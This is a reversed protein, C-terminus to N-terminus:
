VMDYEYFKVNIKGVKVKRCLKEIRKMIFNKKYYFLGLVLFFLVVKNRLLIFYLLYKFCIKNMVIMKILVVIMKEGVCILKNIYINKLDYILFFLFVM